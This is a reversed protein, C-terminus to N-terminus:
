TNALATQVGSMCIMEWVSSMHEMPPTCRPTMRTTPATSPAWSTCQIKEPQMLSLGRCSHICPMSVHCAGTSQTHGGALSGRCPQSWGRPCSGVRCGGPQPVTGRFLAQDLVLRTGAVRKKRGDDPRAAHTRIEHCSRYYCYVIVTKNILFDPSLVNFEALFSSYCCCHLLSLAKPHEPGSESRGVNLRTKKTVKGNIIELRYEVVPYEDEGKEPNYWLLTSFQGRGHMPAPDTVDLPTLVKRSPPRQKKPPPNEARREEELRREEKAKALPTLFIRDLVERTDMTSIGMIDFILHRSAKGKRSKKKEFCVVRDTPKLAGIRVLEGVFWPAVRDIVGELEEVEFQNDFESKKADCDLIIRCPFSLKKPGMDVIQNEFIIDAAYGKFQKTAAMRILAFFADPWCSFMIFVGRPGKPQDKTKAKRDFGQDGKPRTQLMVPFFPEPWGASSCLNKAEEKTTAYVYREPAIPRIGRSQFERRVELRFDENCVHGLLLKVEGRVWDVLRSGAPFRQLWDPQSLLFLMSIDQKKSDLAAICRRAAEVM